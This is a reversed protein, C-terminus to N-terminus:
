QAGEQGDASETNAAVLTFRVDGGDLPRVRAWRRSGDTEVAQVELGHGDGGVVLVHNEAFDVEPPPPRGDEAMLSVHASWLDNWTAADRVWRVHRGVLGTREVRPLGAWPSAEVPATEEGDFDVGVAQSYARTAASITAGLASASAGTANAAQALRQLGALDFVRGETFRALDAFTEAGNGGMRGCTLSHIVIHKSRALAALEGEDPTEPYHKAPADGVVYLLRIADQDPPSWSLRGISAEVGELVAEPLDGGGAAGTGDLYGQMVDIDDTFDHVRVVYDDSKDRFSVVAFRINPAPDGSRLDDAIARIQTRAQGIWSGMSGTADLAFALEITPAAGRVATQAQAAAPSVLALAALSAAAAAFRSTTPLM